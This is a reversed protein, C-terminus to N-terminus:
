SQRALLPDLFIRNGSAVRRLPEDSGDDVVIVEFAPAKKSKALSGLLKELGEPNNYYPIIVSLYPKM